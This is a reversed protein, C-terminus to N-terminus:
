GTSSGAHNTTLLEKGTTKNQLIWGKWNVLLFVVLWGALWGGARRQEEAKQEALQRYYYYDMGPEEVEEQETRIRWRIENSVCQYDQFPM